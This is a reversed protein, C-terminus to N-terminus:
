APRPVQQLSEVAQHRLVVQQKQISHISIKATAHTFRNRRTITMKFEMSNRILRICAKSKWKTDTKAVILTIDQVRISSIVRPKLTLFTIEALMPQYKQCCDVAMLEDIPLNLFIQRVVDM